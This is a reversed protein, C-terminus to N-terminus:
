NLSRLTRQSLRVQISRFANKIRLTEDIQKVLYVLLVAVDASTVSDGLRDDTRVGVTVAQVHLSRRVALREFEGVACGCQSSTQKPLDVSGLLEEERSLLVICLYASTMTFSM